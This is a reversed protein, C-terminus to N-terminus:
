AQTTLLGNQAPCRNKTNINWAEYVNNGMALPFTAASSSLQRFSFTRPRQPAERRFRHVLTVVKKELCVSAENELDFPAQIRRPAVDLGHCLLFPMNSSEIGDSVVIEGGFDEVDGVVVRALGDSGHPTADM